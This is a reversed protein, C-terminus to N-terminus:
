DDLMKSALGPKKPTKNPKVFSTIGEIGGGLEWLAFPSFKNFRMVEIMVQYMLSFNGTFVQSGKFSDCAFAGEGPVVVTVNALLGKAFSELESDTFRTLAEGIGRSIAAFDVVDDIREEDSENGALGDLNKLGGIIPALLTLVKKELILGKFPSLPLFSFEYEGIAKTMPQLM